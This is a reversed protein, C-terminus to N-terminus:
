APDAGHWHDELWALREAEARGKLDPLRPRGFLLEFRYDLTSWLRAM